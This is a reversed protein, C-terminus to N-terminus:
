VVFDHRKQTFAFLFISFFFLCFFLSLVAIRAQLCSKLPVKDPLEALYELGGIMDFKGISTLEAKVTIIDINLEKQNSELNDLRIEHEAVQQIIKEEM